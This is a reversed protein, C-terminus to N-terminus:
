ETEQGRTRQGSATERDAPQWNRPTSTEGIFSNTPFKSRWALVLLSLSLARLLVKEKIVDGAKWPSVLCVCRDQHRM